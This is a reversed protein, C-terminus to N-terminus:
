SSLSQAEEETEEWEALEPGEADEELLRGAPGWRSHKM